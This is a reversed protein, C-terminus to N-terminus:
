NVESCRAPSGDDRILESKGGYAPHSFRDAFLKGVFGVPRHDDRVIGAEQTFFKGGFTRFDNDCFSKFRQNTVTRRRRRCDSM